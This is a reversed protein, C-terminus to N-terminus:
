RGNRIMKSRLNTFDTTCESHRAVAKLHLSLKVCVQSVAGRSRGAETMESTLPQVKVAWCVVRPRAALPWPRFRERWSRPRISMQSMECWKWFRECRKVDNWISTPKLHRKMQPKWSRWLVCGWYFERRNFRRVFNPGPSGPLQGHGPLSRQSFWCESLWQAKM